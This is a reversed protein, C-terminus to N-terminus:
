KANITAKILYTEENGDEASVQYVNQFNYRNSFNAIPNIKEVRRSYSHLICGNPSLYDYGKEFLNIRAKFQPDFFAVEMSHSDADASEWPISALILDFQADRAVNSFGDSEIVQVLDDVGNVECNYKACQVANKNIDLATVLAGHQAAYIALIGSGTGYDLVRVGPYLLSAGTDELYLLTIEDIEPPYVTENVQIPMGFAEMIYPTKRKCYEDLLLDAVQSRGKVFSKQM